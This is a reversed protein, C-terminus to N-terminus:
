SHHISVILEDIVSFQLNLIVILLIGLVFNLYLIQVPLTYFTFYGLYFM